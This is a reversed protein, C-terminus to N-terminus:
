FTVCPKDNVPAQHIGADGRSLPAPQCEKAPIKVFETFTLILYQGKRLFCKKMVAPNKFPKFYCITIAGKKSARECKLLLM